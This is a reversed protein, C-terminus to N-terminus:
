QLSVLLYFWSLLMSIYGPSKNRELVKSLWSSKGVCQGLKVRKYMFWLRGKMILNKSDHFDEFQDGQDQNVLNLWVM